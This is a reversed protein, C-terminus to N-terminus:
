KLTITWWCWECLRKLPKIQWFLEVFPWAPHFSCWNRTVRTGVSSISSLDVQANANLQRHRPQNTAVEEHVDNLLKTKSPKPEFCVEKPFSIETNGTPSVRQKTLRKMNIISWTNSNQHRWVTLLIWLYNRKNGRYYCKSKWKLPCIKVTSNKSKAYQTQSQRLNALVSPPM